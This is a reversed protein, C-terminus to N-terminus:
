MQQMYKKEKQSFSLWLNKYCLEATWLEFYPKFATHFTCNSERLNGFPKRKKRQKSMYM